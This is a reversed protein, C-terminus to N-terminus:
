PKARGNLHPIHEVLHSELPLLVPAHEGVEAYHPRGRFEYRVSLRKACRPLPDYFGRLVSKSRRGPIFLQGNHVLSQVPITVNIGLDAMPLGDELPFYLAELIVLGNNDEEARMTRRATDALIESAALAEARDHLIHEGEAHQRAVLYKQKRAARRTRLVFFEAFAFASAPVLTAVMVLGPAYTDSITIPLLLTQGLYNLTMRLIVGNVNWIVTASVDTEGGDNSWAGGLTCALGTLLNHEFGFTLTTSLASCLAQWQAYIVPGTATRLSLGCAWSKTFWSNSSGAPRALSVNLVPFAGKSPHLVCDITGLIPSERFLLRRFTLSVPPPILTPRLPVSVRFHKLDSDHTWSLTLGRLNLLSAKVQLQAAPSYQHSVVGLVNGRLLIHSKSNDLTGVDGEDELNTQGLKSIVQLKTQRGIRKSFTHRLSLISLKTASVRESLDTFWDRDLWGDYFLERADVSCTIAGRSNIHTQLLSMKSEFSFERLSTRLEDQSLEKFYDPFKLKLGDYGITDYVERLFPDSLIEYASQVELFREKASEKTNEDRQKDPHFILSLARHREKIESETAYLPLNLVASDDSFIPKEDDM